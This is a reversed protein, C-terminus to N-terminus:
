IPRNLGGFASRSNRQPMARSRAGVNPSITKAASGAPDARRKGDAEYFLRHWGGRMSQARRAGVPTEDPAPAHGCSKARRSVIVWQALALFDDPLTVPGIMPAISVFVVWGAEALPRMDAWRRDFWEQNEASFGLWLHAQWRMVTRPDLAAFYDAMRRTRKTLLLGIHESMAITACVRSIIEDPQREYFLDAMGGVFILSPRGPGLKPHEAGPWNRLWRWLPHRDPLATAKGNFVWRRKVRKIVERHIDERHTHSAAWPPAFCHRCGPSPPECGAVPNAAVDWWWSDGPM